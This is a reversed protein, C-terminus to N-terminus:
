RGPKALFRRLRSLPWANIVDDRTLWGRQATAVGYRLNELHVTAHADTDIAFRVGFRRAWLIHEDSLDLRDPFSNVELATGTRAAARFVEDADFEIAARRGILRASPHGIVNVYPNECARVLRRTMEQKTQTFHSHVSAVTLDFGALFEPPWDVAGDADINLESGHLLTMRGAAGSAALRRVEERQALMKEDTMRQMHLQPAHDTIAYYAYGLRVAAAVMEALPAQGDTLNTHTHLDRRVDKLEVLAPLEGRLAAEVEGRDERLTPPIWDMGLRRYVEEETEAALLRETDAEFLGYESLKLGMRVAIERIRINHAKSGTFYVLAAGWVRPDVVRVDVQIGRTTRVSTKTEGSAIVETVFPLSRFRQMVPVAREAAVLVDVDGITEQMRRLSGAFAVRRAERLESLAAVVEEALEMAANVPVRGGAKSMLDIGHLINAESKEGFGKVGRLRGAEVAQRLAPVSDIGLDEFLLKARKPGLGPIATMERVGEPVRARLEDLAAVKGTGLFEVVKEAISAGVHPIARVGRADLASVDVGYGAVAAAAKEYARARFADGGSILLLDAYEQLLAAVAENTRPM